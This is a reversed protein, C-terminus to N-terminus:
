EPIEAQIRNYKKIISGISKANISITDLESFLEPAEQILVKLKQRTSEGTSLFNTPINMIGLTDKELYYNEFNSMGSGTTIILTRVYVSIRGPIIEKLLWIQQKKGPILKSRYYSNEGEIYVSNIEHSPLTTKKNNSQAVIRVKGVEIKSIKGFLTDMKQTVIYDQGQLSFCCLVVFVLGIGITKFTM